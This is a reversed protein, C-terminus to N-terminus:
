AAQQRHDKAIIGLGLASPGVRRHRAENVPQRIAAEVRLRLDEVIARGAPEDELARRHEARGLLAMFHERLEERLANRRRARQLDMAPHARADALQEGLPIQRAIRRGADILAHGLVTGLIQETAHPVRQRGCRGEVHAIVPEGDGIRRRFRAAHGVLFDDGHHLAERGRQLGDADM